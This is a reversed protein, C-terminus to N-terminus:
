ISPDKKVERFEADQVQEMDYTRKPKEPNRRSVGTKNNLLSRIVTRAILYVVYFLIAIIVYRM